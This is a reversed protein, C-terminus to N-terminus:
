QKVIRCFGDEIRVLYVGSPLGDVDIKTGETCTKKMVQVGSVDYIQVEKVGEGIGEVTFSQEVVTPYVKLPLAERVGGIGETGNSFLVKRINDLAYSYTNGTNASTMVVMLSTSIYIEGSSELAIQQPDGSTPVVTVTVQAQLGCFMLLGLVALFLKRKM